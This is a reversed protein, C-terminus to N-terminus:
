NVDSLCSYAGVLVYINWKGPQFNSGTNLTSCYKQTLAAVNHVGLVLLGLLTLFVRSAISTMPPRLIHVGSFSHARRATSPVAVYSGEASSMKTIARSKPPGFRLYLSASLDPM